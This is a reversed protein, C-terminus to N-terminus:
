VIELIKKKPASHVINITVVKPRGLRLMVAIVPDEPLKVLKELYKTYMTIPIASAPTVCVCLLSPRARIASGISIGPNSSTDV